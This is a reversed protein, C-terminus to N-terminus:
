FTGGVSLGPPGGQPNLQPVVQIRYSRALLKYSGYGALASLAATTWFVKSEVGYDEAEYQAEDRTAANHFQNRSSLAEAGVVIAVTGIGLSLTALAYGGFRSWPRTMRETAPEPEDVLAGSVRLQLDFEVAVQGQGEVFGRYYTPGYPSAFLHQRYDADVSGSRRAVTPPALRIDNVAVTKGRSIVRAEGNATRVYVTQGVPLALTIDRERSMHADILRQGDALEVSFRGWAGVNGQMLYSGRLEALRVIPARRHARPPQSIVIPVARPNSISRNANAVFAHLESYEITKDSNIDAPGALGSLVEHSFVGAEIASWEHTENGLTTAAIVGVNPHRELAGGGAIAISESPSVATTAGTTENEFLA